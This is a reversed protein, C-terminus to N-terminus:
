VAIETLCGQFQMYLIILLTITKLNTHTLISLVMGLVQIIDLLVSPLSRTIVSSNCRSPAHPLSSVAGNMRIRPVVHFRAV